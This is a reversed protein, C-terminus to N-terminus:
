SPEELLLGKEDLWGIFAAVDTNASERDLSWRQMLLEALEDETAGEALTPWLTAGSPNVSLYQSNTLDIALVEGELLRWQLAAPNLKLRRV